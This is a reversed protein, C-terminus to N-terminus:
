QNQEVIHSGRCLKVFESVVVQYLKGFYQQNCHWFKVKLIYDPSVDM